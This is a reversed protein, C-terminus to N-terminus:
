TSLSELSLRNSFPSRQGKRETAGSGLDGDKESLRKENKGRMIDFRLNGSHESSQLKTLKSGQTEDM